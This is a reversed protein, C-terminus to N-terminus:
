TKGFGGGSAARRGAAPREDGSLLSAAGGPRILCPSSGQQRPLWPSTSSVVASVQRRAWWLMGALPFWFQWGM